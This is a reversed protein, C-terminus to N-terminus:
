LSAPWGLWPRPRAEATPWAGAVQEAAGLRRLQACALRFPRHGLCCILCGVLGACIGHMSAPAASAALTAPRAPLPQPGPARKHHVCARKASALHPAHHARWAPAPRSSFRYGVHGVGLVALADRTRTPGTALCPRPRCPQSFALDLFQIQGGCTSASQAQGRPWPRARNSKNPRAAPTADAAPDQRPKADSTSDAQQAPQRCKNQRLPVARRQPLRSAWPLHPWVTGSRRRTKHQHETAPPAQRSRYQRKSSLLAKDAPPSPAPLGHGPRPKRRRARHAATPQNTAHRDANVGQRLM